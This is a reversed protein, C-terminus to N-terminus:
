TENGAKGIVKCGLIEGKDNVRCGIYILLQRRLGAM